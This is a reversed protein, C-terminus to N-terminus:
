QCALRRSDACINQVLLHACNADAHYYSGGAPNHYLTAPLESEALGNPTLFLCCLTLLMTAWRKM